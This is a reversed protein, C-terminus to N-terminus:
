FFTRYFRKVLFLLNNCNWCLIYVVNSVNSKVFFISLVGYWMILILSLREVAHVFCVFSLLCVSLIIVWWNLPCYFIQYYVSFCIVWRFATSFHQCLCLLIFILINCKLFDCHMKTSSPEWYLYWKKTLAVANKNRERSNRNDYVKHLRM